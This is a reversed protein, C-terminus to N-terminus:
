RATPRTPSPSRRSSGGSDLPLSAFTVSQLEVEGVSAGLAQRDHIYDSMGPNYPKPRALGIRVGSM